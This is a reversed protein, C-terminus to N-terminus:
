DANQLTETVKIVEVGIDGAGMFVIIKQTAQQVKAVLQGKDVLSKKPATIQELLVASSVGDIPLERAPYIELLAVEDFNSLAKAFAGMFDRTRSYLHPQFIALVKEKPYMQSVSQFVADIETPHHAYDDIVILDDSKVRYSFRRNVGTYSALAKPLQDTPSGYALAMGLATVANTLNHWGPLNFHLNKLVGKPYELDFLYCGDNITINKACYDADNEIGVTNGKIPLGKAIFRNLPDTLAAFEKFTDELAQADEYIDLHDADMSTVCLMDPRLQLFSRDFEDAEVVIVEDGQQILNGGYNNTVGGVFATVPAGTAALLHGLISATTTKGHTGAVALCTASNAIVGLVEARKKIPYGSERFHLMEKFDKPIAPTYVVLTVEKNDFPSPIASGLDQYHITVGQTELQRTIVSPTKDYGGVTYGHSNFYSALASMGIGGIGIFYVADIHAFATKM